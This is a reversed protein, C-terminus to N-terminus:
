VMHQTSTDGFLGLESTRRFEDLKADLRKKAEKSMKKSEQYFDRGLDEALTQDSTFGMSQEVKVANVQETRNVPLPDAWVLNPMGPDDGTRLYIAYRTLLKLGYGYLRHKVKILDLMDSFLVHLGFNTIQGIKDKQTAMDVVRMQSFFSSRIQELFNQSATLDSQMELNFVDTSPDPIAWVENVATQSLSDGTAGTIITKPHAHFRLIRNTNTAVFNVVDNVKYHRLDSMGYYPFRYRVM